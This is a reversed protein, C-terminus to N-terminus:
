GVVKEEMLRIIKDQAEILKRKLEANEAFLEKEKGCDHASQMTNAPDNDFFELISVELEVAIKELDHAQIKNERVCRHLNGESMGIAAALRKFEKRKREAITKIRQLNM